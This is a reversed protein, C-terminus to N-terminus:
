HRDHEEVRSTQYADWHTVANAYISIFIVWLISNKWWILSPILLLGWVGVM